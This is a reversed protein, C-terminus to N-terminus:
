HRCRVTYDGDADNVHALEYWASIRTTAAAAPNNLLKQLMARSESLLMQRRSVMARALQCSPNSPDISLGRDAIELAQQLNNSRELSASLVGCAEASPACRNVANGLYKAAWDPRRLWRSIHAMALWVEVPLEGISELYTFREQVGSYDYLHSRATASGVLAAASRPYEECMWDFIVAADEYRREQSLKKALALRRDLATNM